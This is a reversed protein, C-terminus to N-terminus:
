KLLAGLLFLLFLAINLVAGMVKVPRNPEQRIMSCVTFLFGLVISAAIAFGIVFGIRIDQYTGFILGAIVLLITVFFTGLALKSFTMHEPREPEPADLLDHM